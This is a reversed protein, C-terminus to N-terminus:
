LKEYSDAPVYEVIKHFRTVMDKQFEPTGHTSIWNLLESQDHIVQGSIIFPKRSRFAENANQLFCNLNANANDSIIHSNTKQPDLCHFADFLKTIHVIYEGEIIDVIKFM